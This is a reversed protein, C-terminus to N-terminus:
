GGINELVFFDFVTVHYYFTKFTKLLEFLLGFFAFLIFQFGEFFAM